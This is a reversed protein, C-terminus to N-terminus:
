TYSKPYNQYKNEKLKKIENVNINNNNNDNDDNNGSYSIYVNHEIGKNYSPSVVVKSVKPIPISPPSQMPIPPPSKLVNNDNLQPCLGQQELNMLVKDEDTEINMNVNKHTELKSLEVPTPPLPKDNLKEILDGIM